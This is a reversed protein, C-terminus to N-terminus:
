HKGGCNTCNGQPTRLGQKWDDCPQTPVRGDPHLPCADMSKHAFEHLAEWLRTHSDNDMFAHTLLTLVLQAEIEIQKRAEPPLKNTAKLAISLLQTRFKIIM